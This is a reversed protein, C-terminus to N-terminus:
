MHKSGVLRTPDDEVSPRLEPCVFESSMSFTAVVFCWAAALESWYAAPLDESTQAFSFQAALYAPGHVVNPNRLELGGRRGLVHSSLSYARLLHNVRCAVFWARLLLFKKKDAIGISPWCRQIKSLFEDIFKNVSSVGGIPIGLVIPGPIASTTPGEPGVFVVWVHSLEGGQM